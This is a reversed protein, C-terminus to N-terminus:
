KKKSNWLDVIKYNVTLSTLLHGELSGGKHKEFEVVGNDIHAHVDEGLHIMYQTSLSIDLRPSLNFHTGIGAQVASSFRSINNSKDTLEFQYTKDFCHGAVIYPQVIPKPNKFWYFMVSWGIHFDNRRTYKNTAPLYDFFWETNVRNSLRLRFQGGAGIASNEGSGNFASLTTRLGLSFLGGHGGKINIDQSFSATVFFLCIIFISNKM